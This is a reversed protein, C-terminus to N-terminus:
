ELEVSNEEFYVDYNMVGITSFIFKRGDDLDIYFLKRGDKETVMYSNLNADEYITIFKEFEEFSGSFREKKYEDSLLDYAGRKDFRVLYIYDNFYLKAMKEESIYVPMYENDKYNKLYDFEESPTRRSYYWLIGFLVGGVM